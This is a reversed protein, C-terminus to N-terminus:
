CVNKKENEENQKIVLNKKYFIEDWAQKIEMESKCHNQILGDAVKDILKEMENKTDRIEEDNCIQEFATVCELKYYESRNEFDVKYQRILNEPVKEEHMQQYIDSQIKNKITKFENNWEKQFLTMRGEKTSRNTIANERLASVKLHSVDRLRKLEDSICEQMMKHYAQSRFDAPALVDQFLLIQDWMAVMMRRWEEM